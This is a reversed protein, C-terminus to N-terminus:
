SSDGLASLFGEIRPVFEPFDFPDERALLGLLLHLGKLHFARSQESKSEGTAIDGAEKLLTALMLSKERVALTSEGKVLRALLETESLQIADAASLGILEQLEQDTLRSAENWQQGKQLKRIRSLVEFFEALMRLIYDRRIM